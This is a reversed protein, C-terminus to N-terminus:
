SRQLEDVKCQLAVVRWGLWGLLLGSGLADVAQRATLTGACLALLALLLLLSGLVIAVSAAIITATKM